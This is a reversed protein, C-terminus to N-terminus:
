GRSYNLNQDNENEVKITLNFISTDLDHRSSREFAFRLNNQSTSEQTYIESEPITKSIQLEQFYNKHAEVSKKEDELALTQAEEFIEETTKVSKLEASNLSKIAAYLHTNFGARFIVTLQAKQEIKAIIAVLEERSVPMEPILGPQGAKDVRYKLLQNIALIFPGKKETPDLNMDVSWVLENENNHTTKKIEDGPVRIKMTDVDQKM